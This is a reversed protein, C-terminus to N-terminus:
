PDPDSPAALVQVVLTVSKCLVLGARCGKVSFYVFNFIPKGVDILGPACSAWGNSAIGIDGILFM